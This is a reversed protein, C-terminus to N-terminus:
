VVLTSRILNRQLIKMPKLIILSIGPETTLPVGQLHSHKDTYLKRGNEKTERYWFTLVYCKNNGDVFNKNHFILSFYVVIKVARAIRFGLSFYCFFLSTFEPIACLVCYV